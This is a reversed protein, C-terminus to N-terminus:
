GDGFQADYSKVDNHEPDFTNVRDEQEEPACGVTGTVLFVPAAFAALLTLVAAPRRFRM